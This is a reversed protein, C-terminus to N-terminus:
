FIHNLMSLFTYLPSFNVAQRFNMWSAVEHRAYSEREREEEIERSLIHTTAKKWLLIKRSNQIIM